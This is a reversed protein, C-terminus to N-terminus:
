IWPEGTGFSAALHGGASFGTVAYGETEVQFEDAHARYTSVANALDEMPNPFHAKEGTRYNVVFAHYGKKNFLKRWRFRRWSPASARM